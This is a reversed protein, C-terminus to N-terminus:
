RGYHASTPGRGTAAAVEDGSMAHPAVGIMGTYTEFYVIVGDIPSAYSKTKLGWWSHQLAIVEGAQVRDGLHRFIYGDFHGEITELKLVKVGRAALGDMAPYRQSASTTYDRVLPAPRGLLLENVTSVQALRAPVLVGPAVAPLVMLMASVLSGGSLPMDFGYRRTLGLLTVAAAGGLLSGALPPLLSEGSISAALQRRRLGLAKLIALIRRNDLYALLKATLFAIALFFVLTMRAQVIINYGSEVFQSAMPDSENMARVASGRSHIGALASRVIAERTTTGPIQWYLFHSNQQAAGTRVVITEGFHVASRFPRASYVDTVRVALPTGGRPYLTIEDGLNIGLRRAVNEHIAASGAEPAFGFDGLTLDLYTVPLDGLNSPTVAHLWSAVFSFMRGNGASLPENPRPAQETVLFYGAPNINQMRGAMVQAERAIYANYVAFLAVASALLATLAVQVVWGKRLMRWILSSM